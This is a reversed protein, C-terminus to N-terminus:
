NQEIPCHSSVSEPPFIRGGEVARNWVEGLGGTQQVGLCAVLVISAIMVSAQLVDTWVVAKIGGLLTYIVCIYSVIVNVAQISHKTVSITNLM